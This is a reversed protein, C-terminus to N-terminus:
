PNKTFTNKHRHKQHTMLSPPNDQSNVALVFLSTLEPNSKFASINQVPQSILNFQLIMTTDFDM